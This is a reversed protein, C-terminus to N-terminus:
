SKPLSAWDAPLKIEKTTVRTYGSDLTKIRNRGPDGAVLIEIFEPGPMVRVPDDPGVAFEPPLTGLEIKEEITHVEAMTYKLEFDLYKRPVTTNECIYKRIDDKSYGAEALVKAVPPALVFVIDNVFSGPGRESFLAFAPKRLADRCLQKLACEAGSQDERDYPSPQFGWNMTTSVSVTSANRDFGKEVHYPEWPNLDENEAFAFNIPYGFTGMQNKAPRYGGINRIILGLARGFSPNAGRSILGAGTNFGLEKVIPGNLFVYPTIGWTTGINDLNYKDEQLAEAMAILIPMTQPKCGAMVGNAAINWVTARLNMQPLVAIVEDHSRDTYRLFEQVRELTPPIVPLGDSWDMEHFHANVEDFNGEFVIKKSDWDGAKGLTRPKIPKTLASVIREFLVDTIKERITKSDDVGVAGPYEVVPTDPVGAAKAALQGVMNFGPMSVVASPIGLIKEAEAAPRM